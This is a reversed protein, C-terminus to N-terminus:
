QIEFTFNYDGIMPIFTTKRPLDNGGVDITPKSTFCTMRGFTEDQFYYVKSDPTDFDGAVAQMPIDKLGALATAPLKQGDRNNFPLDMQEIVTWSAYTRVTVSAWNLSDLSATEETIDGDVIAILVVPNMVGVDLVGTFITKLPSRDNPNEESVVKLNKSRCLSVGGFRLNLIQAPSSM